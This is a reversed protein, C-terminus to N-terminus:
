RDGGFRRRTPGVRSTARALMVSAILLLPASTAGPLWREFYISGGLHGLGNAFMLASFAYSALRAGPSGRRIVPTLLALALTAVILGTLWPGLTFTPMPFWGIQSRIRLVLPNYFDLFHTLAEDLVHLALVAVLALWARGHRASVAGGLSAGVIGSPVEPM